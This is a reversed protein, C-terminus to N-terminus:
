EYKKLISMAKNMEPQILIITSHSEFIENPLLKLLGVQSFLEQILDFLESHLDQAM